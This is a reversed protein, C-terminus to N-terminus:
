GRHRPGVRRGAAVLRASHASSSRGGCIWEPDQAREGVPERQRRELFAELEALLGLSKAVRQAWKARLQM